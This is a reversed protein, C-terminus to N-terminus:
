ENYKRNSSEYEEKPYRERNKEIKTELADELDIDHLDAFRLLFFLVDALEDEVESQRDPNSIIELQERQSKFRFIDLLENSETSLGIALDKPSHYQSWDRTECFERIEKNLDDFQM